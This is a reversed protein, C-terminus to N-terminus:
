EAGYYTTYLTEPLFSLGNGHECYLLTLGADRGLQTPLEIGCGADTEGAFKLGAHTYESAYATWEGFATMGVAVGVASLVGLGMGLLLGKVQM